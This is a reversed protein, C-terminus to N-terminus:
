PPPKHMMEVFWNDLQQYSTPPPNFQCHCYFCVFPLIDLVNVGTLYYITDSISDPHCVFLM